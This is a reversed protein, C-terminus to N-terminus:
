YDTAGNSGSLIAPRKDFLAADEKEELLKKEEQDRLNRYRRRLMGRYLRDHEKDTPDGWEFGAKRMLGAIRCWDIQTKRRCKVVLELFWEDLQRTWRTSPM